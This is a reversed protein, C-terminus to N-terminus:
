ASAELFRGGGNVWLLYAEENVIWLRALFSSVYAACREGCADDDFAVFVRAAHGCEFVVALSVCLWCRTLGAPFVSWLLARRPKVVCACVRECRCSLSEFGPCWDPAVAKSVARKTWERM